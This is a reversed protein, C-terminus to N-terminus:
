DAAGSVGLVSQWIHIHGRVLRRAGIERRGDGIAAGIAAPRERLGKLQEAVAKQLVARVSLSARAPGQLRIALGMQGFADRIAEAEAARTPPKPMLTLWLRLLLRRPPVGSRDFEFGDCALLPAM